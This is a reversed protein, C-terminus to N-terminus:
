GFIGKGLMKASSRLLDLNELKFHSKIKFLEVITILITGKPANVFEVVSEGMSTLSINRSISKKTEHKSIPQTFIFIFVILFLNFFKIEICVCVCVCVYIYKAFLCKM